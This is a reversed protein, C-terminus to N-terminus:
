TWRWPLFLAFGTALGLVFLAGLWGGARQGGGIGVGFDAAIFGTFVGFVFHLLSGLVDGIRTGLLIGLAAFVSMTSWVWDVRFHGDTSWAIGIALLLGYISGFLAGLVASALREGLGLDKMTVVNRRRNM